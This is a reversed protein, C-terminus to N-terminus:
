NTTNKLMAKEYEIIKEWTIWKPRYEESLSKWLAKMIEIHDRETNAWLQRACRNGWGLYYECDMEFRQLLMSRFIPDNKLLEDIQKSCVIM